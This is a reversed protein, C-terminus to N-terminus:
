RDWSERETRLYEDVGEATLFLRHGPMGRLIDIACRQPTQVIQEHHSAEGTEITISVRQGQELEPASIEIKGNPGVVAERHIHLSM